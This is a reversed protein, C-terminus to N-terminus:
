ETVAPTPSPSPGVVRPPLGKGPPGIRTLTLIGDADFIQLRDGSLAMTYAGTCPDQYRCAGLFEIQREGVLSYRATKNLRVDRGVDPPWKVLALVTGDERFELYDMSFWFFSNPVSIGQKDIVEWRGLVSSDENSCGSALLSLLVVLTGVRLTWLRMTKMGKIILLWLPVHNRRVRGASFGRGSISRRLGTRM